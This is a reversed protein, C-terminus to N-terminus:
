FQLNDKYYTKHSNFIGQSIREIILFINEKLLMDLWKALLKDYLLRFVM